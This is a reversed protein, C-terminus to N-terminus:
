DCEEAAVEDALKRRWRSHQIAIDVTAAVLALIGIVNLLQSLRQKATKHQTVSSSSPRSPM